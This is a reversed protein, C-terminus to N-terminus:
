NLEVTAHMGIWVGKPAEFDFYVAFSSIDEESGLLSISAVVAPIPPLGLEEFRVNVRDGQALSGVDGEEVRGLLQYQGAPYATILTQDKQVSAGQSVLVQHVILDAPAILRTTGPSYRREAELADPVYTFLLDGPKVPDGPKVAISLITGSASALAPAVASLDGRALRYKDEYSPDRYIKVRETFVLDGGMVAVTFNPGSVSTILGQASHKENVSLLYVPTGVLLTRNAVSNYGTYYNAHIEYRNAHEIAIVSGFRVAAGDASDGPQAYVAAVTGEVDAYVSKPQIDLLTAGAPVAEGERLLHPLLNGSVPAKLAWEEKAIVQASIIIDKGATQAYAPMWPALCLFLALCFAWLGFIAKKM